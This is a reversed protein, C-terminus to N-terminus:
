NEIALHIETDEELDNEKKERVETTGSPDIGDQLREKKKRGDTKSLWCKEKWM